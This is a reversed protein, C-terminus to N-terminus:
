ANFKLPEHRLTHGKFHALYMKGNEEKLSFTFVCGATKIPGHLIQYQHHLTNASVDEIREQRFRNMEGMIYQILHQENMDKSFESFQDFSFPKNEIKSADEQFAFMTKKSRLKNNFAM